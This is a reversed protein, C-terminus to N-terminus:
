WMQPPSDPGIGSHLLSGVYRTGSVLVPALCRIVVHDGPAFSHNKMFFSSSWQCECDSVGLNSWVEVRVRKSSRFPPLIWCTTIVADSRKPCINNLSSCTTQWLARKSGRKLSRFDGHNVRNPHPWKVYPCLQALMIDLWINAIAQGCFRVLQQSKQNDFM